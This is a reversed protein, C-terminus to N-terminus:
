PLPVVPVVEIAAPKASFARNWTFTAGARGQAPISPVITQSAAIVAGQEDHVLVIALVNMMTTVSANSLVADIRPASESGGLTTNSIVPLIRPDKTMTTWQPAATDITLFARVVSQSGTSIGPIFVPVTSSPPLDITGKVEQVFVQKAGYLTVTYPVNKAAATANINEISAIIDTRGVGNPIAKTFLVTPAQVQVTCLFACPGGCDVGAEGQNQTGDTCSPTKYFISTGLIAFFAAVTAGIITLIIFRRRSAWSMGVTYCFAASRAANQQVFFFRALM